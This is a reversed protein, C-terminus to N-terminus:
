LVDAMSVISCDDVIPSLNYIIEIITNSDFDEGLHYGVDAMFRKASKIIKKSKEELATVEELLDERYEGHIYLWKGEYKRNQTKAIIDSVDVGMIKSLRRCKPSIDLPISLYYDDASFVAKFYKVLAIASLLRCDGINTTLCAESLLRTMLSTASSFKERELLSYRMIGDFIRERDSMDGDAIISDLLKEEDLLKKDDFRRSLYHIYKKEILEVRHAFISSVLDAYPYPSELTNKDVYVRMPSTAQNNECIIDYGVGNIDPSTSILIYQIYRSLSATAIMSAIVSDGVGIFFRIDDYANVIDLATEINAEVGDPYEIFTIKYEFESIGSVVREAYERDKSQCCVGVHGGPMVATCEKAVSECIDDSTQTFYKEM